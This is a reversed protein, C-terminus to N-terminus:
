MQVKERAFWDTLIGEAMLLEAMQGAHQQMHRLNVMQHELKPMNYWSFGSDKADLDMEDIAKDVLDRCIQWYELIEEKTYPDPGKGPKWPKAWLQENKDRQLRWPVFQENTQFLYLHTYFIVHYAIRWFDRPDDRRAWLDDPCREVAQKIMGLSAHYQRKLAPKIDM